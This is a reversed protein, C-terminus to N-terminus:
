LSGRTRIQMGNLIECAMEVTWGVLEAGLFDAFKCGMHEPDAFESVVSHALTDGGETKEKGLGQLSGPVDFLGGVWLLPYLQGDNQTLVFDGTQDVGRGARKMVGNQHRQVASSHPPGFQGTELNGIDVALAHHDMNLSALSAFIAIDHEAGVQQGRQPFMIATQTTFRLGPKKGSTLPMGGVIGNVRLDDPVGAALGGLTGINLFRQMRMGQSVAEGRMQKLAPVSRRVM